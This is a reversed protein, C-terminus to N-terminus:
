ELQPPLHIIKLSLFTGISALKKSANLALHATSLVSRLAILETQGIVPQPSNGVESPEQSPTPSPATFFSQKLLKM